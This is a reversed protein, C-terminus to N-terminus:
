KKRRQFKNLSGFWPVWKIILEKPEWNKKIRLNGNRIQGKLASVMLGVM